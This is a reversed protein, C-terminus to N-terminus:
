GNSITDVNKMSSNVVCIDHRKRKVEEDEARETDDKENQAQTVNFTSPYDLPLLSIFLRLGREYWHYFLFSVCLQREM